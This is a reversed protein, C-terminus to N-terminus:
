TYTNNIIYNAVQNGLKIGEVKDPSFHVGIFIRSQGNEEEAQSFSTYSRPILPRAIGNFATIGNYEDSVFTFHVDDGFRSRLLQFLAGGFTAHGSLYAPFPPTFPVNYTNSPPAGLPEWTPDPQTNPNGSALRIASVPRWINYRYKYHWCSIGADALALNLQAILRGYEVPGYQEQIAILNMIQNYLRPPACLTPTGDYGWFIGKVTDDESRVTQPYAGTGGVSKVENFSLNYLPDTLGPFTPVAFFDASPIVFPEVGVGGTAGWFAGLAVTKMSVPDRRWAPAVTGEEWTGASVYPVPLVTSLALQPEPFGPPGARDTVRTLLMSNAAAIGAVIGSTKSSSAPILALANELVTQLSHIQAPIVSVSAQQPFLDMLVTVVAQIIAVEVSANQNAPALSLYTNNYQQIIMNYAEFGAVLAMAIARSARHPGGQDPKGGPIVNPIEHDVGSTNIALIDVYRLMSFRNLDEGSLYSLPSFGCPAGAYVLSYCTQEFVKVQVRLDTVNAPISVKFCGCKDTVAFKKTTCPKWSTSYIFTTCVKIKQNAFYKGCKGLKFVACGTTTQNFFTDINDPPTLQTIPCKIGEPCPSCCVTPM